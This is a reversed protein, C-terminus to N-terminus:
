QKNRPSGLVKKQLDLLMKNNPNQDIAKKLVELSEDHRDLNVLTTALLGLYNPTENKEVAKSAWQYAQKNERIRQASLAGQFYLKAVNEQSWTGVSVAKVDSAQEFASIAKKSHGFSSVFDGEEFAKIAASHEELVVSPQGSILSGFKTRGDPLIEIGSTRKDLDKLALTLAIIENRTLKVEGETKALRNELNEIAKKTDTQNSDYNITVNGGSPMYVIPSKEQDGRITQSVKDNHRFWLFLGGVIAAIITASAMIHAAKITVPKKGM